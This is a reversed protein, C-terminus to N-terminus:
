QAIPSRDIVANGRDREKRPIEGLQLHRRRLSGAERSSEARGAIESDGRRPLRPFLRAPGRLYRQLYYCRDSGLSKAQKPQSAKLAVDADAFGETTEM